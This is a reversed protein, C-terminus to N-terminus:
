RFYLILKCFVVINSGTIKVTLITFVKVLREGEFNVEAFTAVLLPLLLLPLVLNVLDVLSPSTKLWVILNVVLWSVLLCLLSLLWRQTALGFVRLGSQSVYFFILLPYILSIQCQLYFWFFIGFFFISILKVWIFLILNTAFRYKTYFIVFSSSTKIAKHFM